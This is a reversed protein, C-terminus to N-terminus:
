SDLLQSSPLSFSLRISIVASPPVVDAPVLRVPLRRPLCTAKFQFLGFNSNEQWLQADHGGPATELVSAIAKQSVGGAGDGGATESSCIFEHINIRFNCPRTEPPLIQLLFRSSRSDCIRHSRRCARSLRACVYGYQRIRPHRPGAHQSISRSARPFLTSRLRLRATDLM